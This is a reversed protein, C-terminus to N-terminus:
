AAAMAKTLEDDTSQEAPLKFARVADLLQNGLADLM